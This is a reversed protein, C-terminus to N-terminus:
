GVKSHVLKLHNRQKITKPTDLKRVEQLLDDDDLHVYLKTTSIDQHGMLAMMKLAPIDAKAGLTGFTHRLAHPHLHRGLAKRSARSVINQISRTTIRRGGKLSFLPGEPRGQAWAELAETAQTTLPVTRIRGGKGIVNRLRSDEFQSVNLDRIESVRLGSLGCAIIAREQGTTSDLLAEAEWGKIWKISAAKDVKPLRIAVMPNKAIAERKVLYKYYASLTALKRKQTLKGCSSILRNQYFVADEQTGQEIPKGIFDAFERLVQGNTRQTAPSYQSLFHEQYNM